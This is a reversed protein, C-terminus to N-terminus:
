RSSPPPLSITCLTYIRNLYVEFLQYMYHEPIQSNKIVAAECLWVRDPTHIDYNFACHLRRFHCRDVYQQM